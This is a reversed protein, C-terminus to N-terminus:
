MNYIEKRGHKKHKIGLRDTLRDKNKHLSEEYLLDGVSIDCM